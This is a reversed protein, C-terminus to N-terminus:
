IDVNKEKINNDCNEEGESGGENEEDIEDNISKELNIKEVEGFSEFSKIIINNNKNNNYNKTPEGDENSIDDARNSLEKLFVPKDKLYNFVEELLKEKEKDFQTNNILFLNNNNNNKINYNYNENINNTTSSSHSTNNISHTLNMKEEELSKARNSNNSINNNSYSEEENNFNGGEGDLNEGGEGSEGSEDSNSKKRESFSGRRNNIKKSLKIKNLIDKHVLKLMIDYSNIVRFKSNGSIVYRNNKENSKIKIQDEPDYEILDFPLELNEEHKRSPFEINKRTYKEIFMAEIFQKSLEKQYDEVLKKNKNNIENEGLIIWNSNTNSNNNNGNTNNNIINNIINSNNATSSTRNSSFVIENNYNNNDFDNSSLFKIEQKNKTIIGIASMVNIADYVRRQINKFNLSKVGNKYLERIIHETVESGKATKNEKIFRYVESSISILGNRPYLKLTNDYDKNSINLIQSLSKKGGYDYKKGGGRTQSGGMYHLCNLESSLNHKNKNKDKDKEIYFIKRKRNLLFNKTTSM